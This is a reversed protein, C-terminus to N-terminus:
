GWKGAAELRLGTIVVKSQGGLEELSVDCLKRVKWGICMGESCRFFIRDGGGVGIKCLIGGSVLGEGMGVGM